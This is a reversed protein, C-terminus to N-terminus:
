ANFIRWTEANAELEKWFTKKHLIVEGTARAAVSMSTLDIKLDKRQYQTVKPMNSLM